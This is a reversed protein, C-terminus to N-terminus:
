KAVRDMKIICYVVLIVGISLEIKPNKIKVPRPSGETMVRIILAWILLLFLNKLAVILGHLGYLGFTVVLGVIIYGLLLPTEKLIKYFHLLINLIKNEPLRVDIM